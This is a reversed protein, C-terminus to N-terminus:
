CCRNVKNWKVKEKNRLFLKKSLATEQPHNKQHHELYNRYAFDGDLHDRLLLFGRWFKHLLKKM